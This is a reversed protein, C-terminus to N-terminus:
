NIEDLLSLLSWVFWAAVGLTVAGLAAGVLRRRLPVTRRASEFIAVVALILAAIWLAYWLTTLGDSWDDAGLVGLLLFALGFCAVSAIGARVADNDTPIPRTRFGGDQRGVPVAYRSSRPQGSQGCKGHRRPSDPAPLRATQPLRRM